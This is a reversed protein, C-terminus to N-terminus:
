VNITPQQLNSSSADSALIWRDAQQTVERRVLLLDIAELGEAVTLRHNRRMIERLNHPREALLHRIRNARVELRARRRDHQIAQRTNAMRLALQCAFDPSWKSILERAGQRGPYPLAAEIALLGFILSAPLSRLSLTIGPFVPELGRLFGMWEAQTPGMEFTVWEARDSGINLRNAWALNMARRFRSHIDGLQVGRIPESKVEFTPGPGQDTLWLQRALWGVSDGGRRIEDAFVHDPDLVLLEGRVDRPEPDELHCGNALRGAAAAFAACEKANELQVHVLPRGFHARAMVKGIEAPSSATAFVLPRVRLERGVMGVSRKLLARHMEAAEEAGFMTPRQLNAIVPNAVAVPDEPPHGSRKASEARRVEDEAAELVHGNLAQQRERLPRVIQGCVLGSSDPGSVVMGCGVEFRSGNASHIAAGPRQVNSISLAMAALLNAGADADGEGLSLADFFHLLGSVIQLSAPSM